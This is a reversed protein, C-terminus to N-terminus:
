AGLRGSVSLPLRVDEPNIVLVGTREALRAKVLALLSAGLREPSEDRGSMSGPIMFQSKIDVFGVFVQRAAPPDELRWADPAPVPRKPVAIEHRDATVHLFTTAESPQAVRCKMSPVACAKRVAAALRAANLDDPHHTVHIVLTPAQPRFPNASGLALVAALTTTLM